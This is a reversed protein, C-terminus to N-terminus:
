GEREQRTKLQEHLFRTELLNRVRLLVEAHDFPKTVFDKAGSSLARHKAEIDVDATLVLVPFYDDTSLHDQLQELVGFGDLTPMQLDLLLLDPEFVKYLNLVQLPDTTSQLDNFGNQKLLAELLMVNTSNDDVILIRATGLDKIM